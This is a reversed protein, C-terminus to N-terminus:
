GSGLISLVREPDIRNKYRVIRAGEPMESDSCGRREDICIVLRDIGASQLRQLKTALYEPTWFGAIELLWRREPDGRHILEFDPFVLTGGAEVASPERVVEWAPARRRFDREFRAELRRDDRALERGGAIPDGSRVLLKATDPGRGLACEAVLEFRDCWTARPVLASLARGYLETHRFLAFPGSIELAIGEHSDSPAQRRVVCLLGALQAQRILARTNGWAAIRVRVARRLWARVLMLNAELALREPTLEAPLPSVRRESELDAFLSSELAEVRVGLGEAAKALVSERTFPRATAARFASWRAERPPVPAAAQDTGLTELLAAVFRLKSKPARTPLPERMRQRLESQRKGVFRAHEDLAACLWPHDRETLYNPVISADAARTSLGLLTRPQM